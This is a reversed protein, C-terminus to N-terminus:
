ATAFDIDTAVAHSAGSLAKKPRWLLYENTAEAGKTSVFTLRFQRALRPKWEGEVAIDIFGRDLLEVTAVVIKRPSCRLAKAMERQSIVILGNNFGNLRAMILTFLARSHVSLSTYAESRFVVM